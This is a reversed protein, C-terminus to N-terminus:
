KFYMSILVHSIQIVKKEFSDNGYFICLFRYFYYKCPSKSLGWSSELSINVFYQVCLRRLLYKNLRTTEATLNIQPDIGHSFCTMDPFPNSISKINKRGKLRHLKLITGRMIMMTVIPYYYSNFSQFSASFSKCPQHSLSYQVTPVARTTM